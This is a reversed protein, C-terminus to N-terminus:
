RDGPVATRSIPLMVTFTSGQQPTSRVHLTGHYHEVIQRSIALGLGTGDERTTVFPEFIRDLFAPEIGCGSDTVDIALHPAAPHEQEALRTAIHLTGGDPMADLANSILNQVVQMLEEARGWIDPVEGLTRRVDVGQDRIRKSMLLVLREILQNIDLSAEVRAGPRYLNLLQNAIRGVRQSEELAHGLFRSSRDGLELRVLELFTQISQLPTNIEHAVSAALRGSAAFAENEAVRAQLKVQETVDVLHVIVQGSCTDTDTNTDTTHLTITFFDLLRTTTDQPCCHRTRMHCTRGHPLPELALHGPFDPAIHPYVSDWAQGLLARPTTGILAAFSRNAEQVHGTDSLLVLGDELGDFIARLLNRNHSLSRNLETVQEYARTLEYEAQKRETIDLSFVALRSITGSSDRVPYISNDLYCGKRMDEFRVPQGSAIANAVHRVRTHATDDDMLLDIRKGYLDALTTGLREAVTQNALLVRGQTDMLFAAAQIANLLARLAEESEQLAEETRRREAIEAQLTRNAQALEATRAEVRRELEQNAAQLAEEAQQRRTIDINIEGVYRVVGDSDPIPVYTTETWIVRNDRRGDLGANTTDYSTPGTHSEENNLARLFCDLYGKDHAEQDDFMNFSGVVTDRPTNLLRENAHNLAVVIGDTRFLVIPIPLHDFLTQYCALPMDSSRAQQQRLAAVEARLAAVEARLATHEAELSVMERVTAAVPPM